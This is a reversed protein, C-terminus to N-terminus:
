VNQHTSRRHETEYMAEDRDSAVAAAARAVAAESDCALDDRSLRDKGNCLMRFSKTRLVM